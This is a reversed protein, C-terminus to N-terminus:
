EFNDVPCIPTLFEVTESAVWGDPTLILVRASYYVAARLESVVMSNELGHPRNPAEAGRKQAATLIHSEFRGGEFGDRFMTVDIRYESSALLDGAAASKAAVAEDIGWRVTVRPMRVPPEACRPDAKVVIASSAATGTRVPIETDEAYSPTPFLILALLLLPLIL